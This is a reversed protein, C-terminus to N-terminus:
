SLLLILDDEDHDDVRGSIAPTLTLQATLLAAGDVVVEITERVRTSVAPHVVVHPVVDARVDVSGALAVPLTLAVSRRPEPRPPPNDWGVSGRRRARAVPGGAAAAVTVASTRLIVDAAAFGSNSTLYVDAM